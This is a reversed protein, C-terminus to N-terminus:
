FERRRFIGWAGGLCAASYVLCYSLAFLFSVGGGTADPIGLRDRFNFLQLNPVVYAMVYLAKASAGALAQTAMFRIEFVFHGLMWSIGTLCLASLVSTSIMTLLTAVAATVALKLGVGALALLYGAEWHWGKFLLISVHVVAMALVATLASLLLGLYRGLLYVSRPVPRSLILYLTKTEMERVLGTAAAFTVAAAALVDIFSLGFDLLVRVEQDSALMGLLVSMYLMLGGFILTVSFFRGRVQERWANACLIGLASV